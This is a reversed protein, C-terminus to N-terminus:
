VEEEESLFIKYVEDPTLKYRKTIKKIEDNKFQSKNEIKMMLTQRSIKLYDALDDISDEFLAM